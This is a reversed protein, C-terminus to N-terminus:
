KIENIDTFAHPDPVQTQFWTMVMQRYAEMVETLQVGVWDVEKSQAVDNMAIVLSLELLQEVAENLHLFHM